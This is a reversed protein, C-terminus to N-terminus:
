RTADVFRRAEEGIEEFISLPNQRTRKLVTYSHNGTELWHLEAQPLNAVVSELLEADALDDRTGSLFLM